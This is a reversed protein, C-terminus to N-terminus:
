QVKVRWQQGESDRFLMWYAIANQPLCINEEAERSLSVNRLRNQFFVSKLEGESSESVLQWHTLCSKGKACLNEENGFLFANANFRPLAGDRQLLNFRYNVRDNIEPYQALRQLSVNSYAAVDIKCQSSEPLSSTRWNVSSEVEHVSKQLTTSQRWPKIPDYYCSRYGNQCSKGTSQDKFYGASRREFHLHAGSGCGSKPYQSLYALHQGQKVVSGSAVAPKNLHVYRWLTGFVDEVYSIYGCASSYSTSKLKGDFVAVATKTGSRSIDQGIHPSTGINRCKCWGSTYYGGPVPFEFTPEPPKVFPKKYQTDDWYLYGTTFGCNSLSTSLTVKYHTEGSALAPVGLPYLAVPMVCRDSDSLESSQKPYRKFFTDHTVQVAQAGRNSHGEYLYGESFACDPLLKRLNVKYHQEQADHISYQSAYVGPLVDCKEVSALMESPIAKKKFISPVTVTILFAERSVHPQYFYGNLFSCGTIHNDSSVKLHEGSLSVSSASVLTGPPVDCKDSAPLDSSQATAKKFHTPVHVYLDDAALGTIGLCLTLFLFKM